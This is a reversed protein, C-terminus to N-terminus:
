PAAKFVYENCGLGGGSTKLYRLEFGLRHVFTFVEDPKAVEFPYGGVWDILDHKRSMGRARSVSATAHKSRLTARRLAHLPLYRYLYAASGAILMARMLEGSTNYRWKVRRWRESMHGQDNYISVYLLGGPAVLRATADMARWLEGTHHLVGWSYVVDFRGLSAVFQPDLISGQEILWDSDVAFRRRLETAALVSEPDYDFSRVRAGLQCAALSFLGSGCGVDLFTQGSLTSVHLAEALSDRASRIRAEDVIEIFSRWNKGFDFRAPTRIDALSGSM